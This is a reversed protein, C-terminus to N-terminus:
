PDFDPQACPIDQRDRSESTSVLGWQPEGELAQCYAGMRCRTANESNQECKANEERPTDDDEQKRWNEAPAIVEAVGEIATEGAENVVRCDLIVKRKSASKERVTVSLM